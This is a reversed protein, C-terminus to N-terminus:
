SSGSCQPRCSRAPASTLPLTGACGRSSHSPQPAPTEPGFPSVSHGLHLASAICPVSYSLVLKGLELPPLGLLDSRPMRKPLRVARKRSGTCIRAQTLLSELGILVGTLCGSSGSLKFYQSLSGVCPGTKPSCDSVKPPGLSARLKFDGEDREDAEGLGAV